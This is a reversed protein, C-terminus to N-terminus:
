SSSGPPSSTGASQEVDLIDIGKIYSQTIFDKSKEVNSLFDAITMTLNMINQLGNKLEDTNVEGQQLALHMLQAKVGIVTLSQNINHMLSGVLAELAERKHAKELREADEKRGTVNRVVVAVPDRERGSGIVTFSLMHKTHDPLECEAEMSHYGSKNALLQNFFSSDSAALLESLNKGLVEGFGSLGLFELLAKNARMVTRDNAVLLIVEPTLDIMRELEHKAREIAQAQREPTAEDPTEQRDAKGSQKKKKQKQM